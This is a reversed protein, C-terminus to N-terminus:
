LAKQYFRLVEKLNKKDSLRTVTVSTYKKTTYLCASFCAKKYFNEQLDTNSNGWVHQMGITFFIKIQLSTGICWVFNYAIKCKGPSVFGVLKDKM